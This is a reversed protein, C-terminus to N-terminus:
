QMLPMKAVDTERHCQLTIKPGTEERIGWYRGCIEATYVFLTIPPTLFVFYIAQNRRCAMRGNWIEYPIVHLKGKELQM